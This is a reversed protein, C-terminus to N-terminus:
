VYKLGSKQVIELLWAVTPSRVFLKAAQVNPKTKMAFHM